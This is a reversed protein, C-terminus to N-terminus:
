LYVGNKGDYGLFRLDGRSCRAFNLRDELSPAPYPWDPPMTAPVLPVNGGPECPELEFEVDDNMVTLSIRRWPLASPCLPRVMPASWNTMRASRSAAAM